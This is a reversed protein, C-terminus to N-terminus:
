LPQTEVLVSCEDCKSGRGPFVEDPTETSQGGWSLAAGRPLALVVILLDFMRGASDVPVAINSFVLESRRAVAIRPNNSVLDPLIVVRQNEAINSRFKYLSQDDNDDRNARSLFNKTPHSLSFSV